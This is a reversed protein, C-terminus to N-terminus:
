EGRQWRPKAHEWWDFGCKVCQRTVREPLTVYYEELAPMWRDLTGSGCYPCKRNPDYTLDPKNAASDTELM